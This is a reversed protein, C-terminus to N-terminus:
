TSRPPYIGQLAIIFNLGLFPQRNEHTQGGVSASTKRMSVLKQAPGFTNVSAVALLKGGPTDDLAAGASGNMQHKHAPIQSTTLKTTPTGSRQGVGYASLGPGQGVGIPVRAQLNPLAYTTDGDGGYYTGILSFLATNQAIPLVQGHCFAWGRPAFNFGVLRIEAIFPDSM